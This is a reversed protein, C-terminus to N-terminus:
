KLGKMGNIFSITIFYLIILTLYLNFELSFIIYTSLTLINYLNVYFPIAKKITEAKPILSSLEKKELNKIKANISSKWLEKYSSGFIVNIIVVIIDNNNKSFESNFLLNVILIGGLLLGFVNLLTSLNLKINEKKEM